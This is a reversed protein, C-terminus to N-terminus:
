VPVDALAGREDPRRGGDVRQVVEHPAGLQLVRLVHVPQGLVAATTGLTVRGRDVNGDLLQGVLPRVHHERGQGLPDPDGRSVDLVPVATSDVLVVNKLYTLM